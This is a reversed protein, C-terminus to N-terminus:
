LIAQRQSICNTFIVRGLVHSDVSSRQAPADQGFTACGICWLRPRTPRGSQDRRLLAIYGVGTAVKSLATSWHHVVLDSLNDEM